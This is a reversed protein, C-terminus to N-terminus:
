EASDGAREQKNKGDMHKDRDWIYNSVSSLYDIM